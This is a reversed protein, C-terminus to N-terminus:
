IMQRRLASRILVVEHVNEATFMGVIIGTVPDVVPLTPMSSQQLASLGENLPLDPELILPSAYMSERVRHAPGHDALSSILEMRFLMGSVTGSDNLVPFDQQSSARLLDVAHRLTSDERLTHFETMMGDAVRLGRVHDEQAVMQAERGAAIFVFFAILLLMPSRDFWGGFVMGVVVLVAIAQGLTAAWRTAKVYDGTFLALLARLVRGGDMPFAPVMNFAVMMVNWGMLTWAGQRLQSLDNMLDELSTPLGFILALVGAIIVNVLPGCLAVVLEESPKRPMRELRAVGGIPLLTIDPTRIGYWCAATVHGFEHLLVCLFMACVLLLAQLVHSLEGGASSTEWAVFGLLLAFTAHIRVETGAITAIHYSWKM